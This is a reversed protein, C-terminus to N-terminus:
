LSAPAGSSRDDRPPPSLRGGAHAEVAGWVLPRAGTALAAAGTGPGLDLSDFGAQAAWAVSARRLLDDPACAALDPDAACFWLSAAGDGGLVHALAVRRPGACLALWFGACDSGDLAACRTLLAQAWPRRWPDPGRRAAARWAMAQAQAAATEAAPLVSLRLPGYATELRGAYADLAAVTEPRGESLAQAYADAGDGCDAIWASATGYASGMFVPDRTAVAAFHLRDAGIAHLLQAPDCVLGPEAVAGCRLALPAGLLAAGGRGARHVPVFGAIRGARRIVAVGAGPRAAAAARAWAPSLFPGVPARAELGIGRWRAWDARGLANVQVLEIRM